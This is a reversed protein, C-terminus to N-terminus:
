VIGAKPNFLLHLNSHRHLSNTGEMIFQWTMLYDGAPAIQPNQIFDLFEDLRGRYRKDFQDALATKEAATPNAIDHLVHEQERSFYLMKYPCRAIKSCAYLCKINRSKHSNRKQIEDVSDTLIRELQYSLHCTNSAIVHENPIFCGDTDVLQIIASIDGQKIGYRQTAKKVIRGVQEKINQPTSGWDSTIDGGTFIFRHLSPQFYAKFLSNLADEDTAGEVIFLIVKKM